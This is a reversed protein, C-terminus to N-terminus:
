GADYRKVGPAASVSQVVVSVAIALTCAAFLREYGDPEYQEVFLLYYIAAVGLPGYWSLFGIGRRPTRTVRLAAAVVPPRRLVLVWAAFAVGPWGLAEWGAFPLLAGFLVFVPVILIREFSEQVGELEEAYREGVRLSFVTGAVFSALVGTGGLAHAIGLTLVAMAVATVLFFGVEPEEHDEIVDVFVATAFGIVAGVALAIALQVVVEEGISGTGAPTALVLVAVLVFPLALGDNAGAEIQLTRRLWRPLHREALKGSVISGAVVPDTPTLIAGVLLAAWPELDLLLGAGLSTVLWMGAMVVTLLLGVRGANERLDSARLQLATAVLGVSLTIRALEELVKRPEGLSAPEVIGLVGPGAVAGIALAVAPVSLWLRRLTGSLLGLVLLSAGLVVLATDVSVTHAGGGGAPGGGARRRRARRRGAPLAGV